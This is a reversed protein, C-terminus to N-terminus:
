SEIVSIRFIESYETEMGDKAILFGVDHYGRYEVDREILVGGVKFSRDDFPGYRLKSEIFARYNNMFGMSKRAGGFAFAVVVQENVCSEVMEAGKLGGRATIATIYGNELTYEFELRPKKYASYIINGSEGISAIADNRDIDPNHYLQGNEDLHRMNMDYLEVMFNYNEAFQAVTLEGRNPPLQSGFVTLVVVMIWLVVSAAIGAAHRGGMDRPVVNSYDEWYLKLGEDCRKYSKWNMIWTFIPISFGIGYIFVYWTRHLGDGYALRGGDNNTVRLGFLLKGFTTGFIRLLLPELLLMTILSCVTLLINIGTGTEHLTFAIITAFITRYLLMDAGRALYRRWPCPPYHPMGPGIVIVPDSEEPLANIYKSADLTAYSEGAGRMAKCVSKAEELAKAESELERLRRSLVSSLEDAGSQLARIDEISVGVGRLLKIKDLVALEDASYARYGNSMRRPNILGEQEYYRITARPIGSMSEIEKITM